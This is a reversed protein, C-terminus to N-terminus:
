VTCSDHGEKGRSTDRRPRGQGRARSDQDAQCAHQVCLVERHVCGARIETCRPPLQVVIAARRAGSGGGEQGPAPAGWLACPSQGGPWREGRPSCRSVTCWSRATWV